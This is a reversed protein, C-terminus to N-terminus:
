TIPFPAKTRFQSSTNPPSTICLSMEPTEFSM